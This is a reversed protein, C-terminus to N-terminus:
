QEQETTPATCRGPGWATVPAACDPTAPHRDYWAHHRTHLDMHTHCYLSARFSAASDAGREWRVHWAAPEGCVAGPVAPLNHGCTPTTAPPQRATLRPTPYM